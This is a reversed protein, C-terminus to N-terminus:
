RLITVYGKQVARGNKPDIVYYYTGAPLKQGRWTGDWPTTYGISRFVLSGATNYVEVICGPYDSLNRIDWVDNFGDGNPTFTNPPKPFRLVKVQVVDSVVCNGRGTVTLRYTIDDQPSQITPNLLSPNDLYTSPTWLYSLINGTATAQDIKRIGDELVFLDPGASIVPYNWVSMQRSATDSICGENSYVYLRATYSGASRYTYTPNRTFSSDSNGFSWHWSRITSGAAMSNDTFQLADGICLSDKVNFAAKPQPYVETLQRTLSDVCGAVSTVRLTVNYTGLQSYYYVPNKLVSTDSGAPIAFPDGFRWRYTFQDETNGPITSSNIFAATGAPLCVRPLQFNVRPLPNVAVPRTFPLSNCGRSDTVNQTVNYIAASAYVHTVPNGNSATVVPSGDGYNWVWTAIPSGSTTSSDAFTVANKECVPQLVRFGALPRPWVEITQEVFEICGATTTFTYRITHVGVGATAPNFLGTPSVGKGTYVGTGPLGATEIAQTIQRPAADVCIGPIAAFQILPTANVVVPRVIESVCVGGSFARFRVQFTRTLPAQFVPYQHAYVKGPQPDNDLDFVAPSGAQDWYIEVKTISGFDVISNNRIRVERNGCLNNDPLIDFAAQPVSGNVTFQRSISDVCGAPTTVRLKVTYVGVANYKVAPNPITSTLLSPNPTIPPTGANFQWFYTFGGSGDAIRSTDTFLAQADSLCVDPLVFGPRPLPHIRVTQVLTDSICGKSNEVVLRIVQDGWAAYTHTIPNPANNLLTGDGLIWYRRIISGVNATSNDQLSLVNQECRPTTFAFSATPWPHVVLTHTVTDSVCDQTSFAWLTATYTGPATYIKVPNQQTSSTGDSFRWEWRNIPHTFGNTGTSSYTVPTQWCVEAPAAIAAKPQPYINNQVRTVSDVCGNGSTAILKISYPGTAPYTHTPNALTSTNLAGSGPNGFNWNYLLQAQTGDAITSQNTFSVVANPLCAPSLTFDPVPKPHVQVPQTLTNRCGTSSILQLSAQFTTSVSNSNTNSFVTGNGLNWNWNTISGYGGALTSADTFAITGNICTPSSISFAPQPTKTVRIIKEVTDSICGIDTLISYRIKYEGPTTYVKVPNNEYAFTGDGFDWFHRIVPRGNGNNNTTIVISSDTCGNAPVNPWNFDAVPPNFVQLTFNIIQTGSCGDPTPNNATVKIPYNGINNYIYPDPLRFVYLTRGNLEYSSDPVPNNNTVNPFGAIEWVMSLPQYPLTLSMIFPSGKCAVPSNITAFSNQTTIFQYLDIVNTGANYGYSEFSGFGYAIANFGSDSQISYVGGSPLQQRLYSYNPDQPHVIFPNTAIAAGAANRLRFSSIATGKNPIIVNFYHGTINFNGTANWLVKNINQEVPSLYIVEPDGLGTTNGCNGQSPFYQAVMIPEDAEILMPQNTLPLDYYFSGILPVGIPAGNVRVAAAPNSVAVRFHNFDQGGAATTTLFKKGWANKPFAQVMYNDSSTSNTNPCAISIRGSGSFVALRKCGTGTNVSRILTGSLDVGFHNQSPAVANIFQGMLNFVQGQQLTVTFPVGAPRTLTPQSPTIEVTTTGTDAAIVYAWCNSNPANTRNTYNISYYERGLTSVPFLITAGSVSQNYVHAYAVIPRTSTILIGKNEGTTSESLLRADFAGTKPLPASTVVSNAPVNYTVSYGNRPISVTVTSAEEAAFYLVMEQVNNTTMVQHYGYAVWFETGKNSFDQAHTLQLVFLYTLLFLLKKLILGNKLIWLLHLNCTKGM